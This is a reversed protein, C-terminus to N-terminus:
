SSSSPTRSARWASWASEKSWRVNDRTFAYYRRGLRAHFPTARREIAERADEGAAVFRDFHRPDFGM